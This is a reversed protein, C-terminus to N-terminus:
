RAPVDPGGYKKYLAVVDKSLRDGRYMRTFAEAVFEAQDLGAYLSVKRAVRQDYPSNHEGTMSKQTHGMEHIVVDKFDQVAFKPAGNGSVGEFTAKTAQDLTFEKPVNIPVDITLTIDDSKGEGPVRLTSGATNKEVPTIILRNPMIYGESKMTRLQDATQVAAKLTNPSDFVHVQQDGSLLVALHQEAISPSRFATEGSPTTYVDDVPYEQKRGRRDWAKISAARDELIAWAQLAAEGTESLYDEQLSEYPAWPHGHDMQEEVQRFVGALRQNVTPKARRRISFGSLEKAALISIQGQDNEITVLPEVMDQRNVKLVKFRQGNQFLHRGTLSAAIDETKLPELLIDPRVIAVRESFLEDFPITRRLGQMDVVTAARDALRMSEVTLTEGNRLITEGALTAALRLEQHRVIHSTLVKGFTAACNIRPM